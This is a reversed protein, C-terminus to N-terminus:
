HENRLVQSFRMKQTKKKGQGRGRSTGTGWTHGVGWGCKRVSLYAVFLPLPLGGQDLRDIYFIGIEETGWSKRNSLGGTVMGKARRHWHGAVVNCQQQKPRIRHKRRLDKDHDDTKNMTNLQKNAIVGKQKIKGRPFILVIQTFVVSAFM